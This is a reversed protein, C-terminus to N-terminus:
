AWGALPTGHGLQNGNRSGVRDERDVVQRHADAEGELEGCAHPAAREVRHHGVAPGEPEAAVLGAGSGHDDDPIEAKGRAHDAAAIEAHGLTKQAAFPLGGIEGLEEVQEGDVV